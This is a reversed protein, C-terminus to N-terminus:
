KKWLSRDIGSQKAISLMERASFNKRGMDIETYAKTKYKIFGNKLLFSIIERPKWNKLVPSGL